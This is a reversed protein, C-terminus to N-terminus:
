KFTMIEILYDTLQNIIEDRCNSIVEFRLRDNQWYKHGSRCFGSM